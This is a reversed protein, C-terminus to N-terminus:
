KYGIFRDPASQKTALSRRVSTQIPKGKDKSITVCSNDVESAFSETIPDTYTTHKDVNTKHIEYRADVDAVRELNM